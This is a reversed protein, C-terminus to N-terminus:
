VVCLAFWDRLLLCCVIFFSASGAFLCVVLLVCRDVFLSCCVLFLLGCAVM